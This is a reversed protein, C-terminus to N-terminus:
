KLELSLPTDATVTAVPAAPSPQRRRPRREPMSAPVAGSRGVQIVARGTKGAREVVIEYEGFFPTFAAQGEANTEAEAQGSLETNLLQELMAVAPKPKLEADYLGMQPIVQAPAWIEGFTVSAIAPQSFFLLLYDRLMAAQFDPDADNVALGRIHLPLSTKGIIQKLRKELSQPAVDQRKFNAGLVIGDLKVGETGLWEILELFDNLSVESIEALSNLDSILLKSQPNGELVQFFVRSLSDVGIFNYIENYEIPAHLVEWADIKGGLRRSLGVIHQRLADNLQQANLGRASPPALMYAPCFLAHGRLNKGAQLALELVGIDIDKGWQTHDRWTFGDYFSFFSAPHQELVLKRYAALDGGLEQVRQRIELARCAPADPPALLAASVELGFQLPRSLQRLTVKAGPAPLGAETVAVQLAGRCNLAIAERVKERWDNDYFDGGLVPTVNNDMSEPNTGPPYRWAEINRLELTGAQEALHFSFATRGAPYYEHLPVAVKVQHWTDVPETLRLSLLKPWPSAEVQWYFHFSYGESIKYEFSIYLVEGRDFDVALPQNLEQSWPKASPQRVTFSITGGEGPGKAPSVKQGGGRVSWGTVPGDPHNFRGNQVVQVPEAAVLWGSPLGVAIMLMLLLRHM